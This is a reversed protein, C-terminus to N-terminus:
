TEKTKSLTERSIDILRNKLYAISRRKLPQNREAYKQLDELRLNKPAKNSYLRRRIIPLMLPSMWHEIKKKAIYKYLALYDRCLFLEPLLLGAKLLYNFSNYIDGKMYSINQLYLHFFSNSWNFLCNPIGQHRSKLLKFMLDRSRKMQKYDWSMAKPNKRYAVLLKKVVLFHYHESIRLHLDWDECGQALHIFFRSDYGGVKEICERRILPSSAAGLFHSLLLPTFVQGEYRSITALGILNSHVDIRTNWVYVLGVDPGNKRFLRV